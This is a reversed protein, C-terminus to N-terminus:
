DCNPTMYFPLIFCNSPNPSQFITLIPLLVFKSPFLHTPFQSCFQVKNQSLLPLNKPVRPSLLPTSCDNSALIELNPSCMEM